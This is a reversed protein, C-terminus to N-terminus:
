NSVDLMNIATLPLGTFSAPPSQLSPLNPSDVSSGVRRSSFPTFGSVLKPIEFSKLNNQRWLCNKTLKLHSKLIEYLSELDKTLVEIPFKKLELLFLLQSLLDNM